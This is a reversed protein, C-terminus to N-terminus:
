CCNYSSLSATSIHTVVVNNRTEVYSVMCECILNYKPIGQEGLSDYLGFTAKFYLYKTEQDM